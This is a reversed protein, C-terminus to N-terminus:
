ARGTSGFGGGRKKKTNGSKAAIFPMFLGQAIREGTELKVTKTGTNKLMLGINGDNDPNEYYDADIIGVTNALILDKKTGLSSRPFGLLVRGISMKAKVDTWVLFKEGPELTLDHPLYFDYGASVASGRTPLKIDVNPNKRAFDAVVFFEPKRGFLNRFFNLM